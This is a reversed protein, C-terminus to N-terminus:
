QRIRIATTVIITMSKTDNINHDNSNSNTSSKTTNNDHNNDNTNTHAGNTNGNHTNSDDNSKVMLMRMQITMVVIVTMAEVIGNVVM